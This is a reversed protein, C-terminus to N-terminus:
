VIVNCAFLGDTRGKTIITTAPKALVVHHLMAVVDMKKEENMSESVHSRASQRRVGFIQM